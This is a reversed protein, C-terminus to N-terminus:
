VLFLLVRQKSEDNTYSNAYINIQGLARPDASQALLLCEPGDPLSDKKKKLASCAPLDTLAVLWLVAKYETRAKEIVVRRPFRVPRPAIWVALIPSPSPYRQFNWRM